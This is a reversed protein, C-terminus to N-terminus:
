VQVACDTHHNIQFFTGYYGINGGFCQLLVPVVKLNAVVM